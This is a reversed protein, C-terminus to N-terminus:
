LRIRVSLTSGFITDLRYVNVQHTDAVVPFELGPLPIKLGLHIACVCVNARLALFTSLWKRIEAKRNGNETKCAAKRELKGIGGNGSERYLTNQVIAAIYILPLSCIQPISM